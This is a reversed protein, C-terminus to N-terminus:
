PIRAKGRRTAIGLRHQVSRDLSKLIAYAEPDYWLEGDEDEWEHKDLFDRLMSDFSISVLTPEGKRIVESGNPDVNIKVEVHDDDYSVDIEVTTAKLAM